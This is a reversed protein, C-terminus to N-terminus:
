EPRPKRYRGLTKYRLQAKYYKFSQDASNMSFEMGSNSSYDVLRSDQSLQVVESLQDVDLSSTDLTFGAGTMRLTTTSGTISTGKQTAVIGYSGKGDYFHRISLWRVKVDAGAPSPHATEFKSDIATGNDDDGTEHDWLVGGFDGLHPKGDIITGCNREWGKLPGHWAGSSQNDPLLIRRRRSYVMINDPNTSTGTPLVFWVEDGLPWFFAFAQHLRATNVNDWYDAGDLAHSVKRLTAGGEWIHIGDELIMLQSDDPLAVVSRGAIGAQFTRRQPHYPNTANGTPILTYIGDTTHVVLANQTAVLGKIIGGFNFFSTAGWTEIDATDSHWLQGTAGDVNGIWCRNDFWAIHKGKSFRSDDDLDSANGSGTWKWANTDVGNTAVLTGNCDAYEWTNDNGATVTVSGTIASWGSSYKYIVAGAVLVVHTTSADPKFEAVMTTTPGGGIASASKYSLTGKRSILWGAPGIRCNEMSNLEDNACEQPPLDYRVSNWPGVQVSDASLAM